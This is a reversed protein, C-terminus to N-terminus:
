FIREIIPADDSHNEAVDVNDVDVSGEKEEPESLTTYVPNASVLVFLRAPRGGSEGPPQTEWHGYGANAMATLIAEAQESTKIDRRGQQLERVTISGGKGRIWDALQRRESDTDSEALMAYVRRTEYCHWRTLAIAAEITDVDVRDTTTEGTAMKVCHIILALRLPIEELKSWAAALDGSLEAQEINHRNYFDQYIRQAAKTMGIYRPKPRGDEATDMPLDVVSRVLAIYENRISDGITGDTWKKPKRPPCTLLLRAAMGSERHERGLCHSLISPQIGGTICILPDRVYITRPTGTKRDITITKASYMSLWNASDSGSQKYENFSGLWGALEDRALLLGKPNASLIPALAEMTTDTVILRLPEPPLPKTPPPEDTKKDRKWIAAAKEYAAVDQQYREEAEDANVYAEAQLDEIPKLTIGMAPTKATGSDGVIATWIIPPIAWGSKAVLRRANGIMAGTATLMPLTIYSTDCGISSAGEIALSRLPEPLCDVPYPQFEAPPEPMTFTLGKDPDITPTYNDKSM